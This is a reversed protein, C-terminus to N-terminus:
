DMEDAMRNLAERRAQILADVEAAKKMPDIPDNWPGERTRIPLMTEPDPTYTVVRHQGSEPHVEIKFHSFMISHTEPPEPPATPKLRGHTRPGLM